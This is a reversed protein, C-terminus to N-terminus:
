KQLRKLVIVFGIIAVVVSGIIYYITNDSNREICAGNTQNCGYECSNQVYQCQADGTANSCIGNYLSVNGACMSKCTVGYCVDQPSVCGSNSNCIQTGNNWVIESLEIHASTLFATGGYNSTYASSEMLLNLPQELTSIDISQTEFSDSSIYLMTSFPLRAIHIQSVQTPQNIYDFGSNTKSLGIFQQGSTL